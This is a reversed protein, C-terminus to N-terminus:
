CHQRPGTPSKSHIYSDIKLSLQMQLTAQCAGSLVSTAPGNATVPSCQLLGLLWRWRSQRRGGEVTRCWSSFQLMNMLWTVFNILRVWSEWKVPSQTLQKNTYFWMWKEKARKMAVICECRWYLQNIRLFHRKKTLPHYFYKWLLEAHSSLIVGHWLTTQNIYLKRFLFIYRM